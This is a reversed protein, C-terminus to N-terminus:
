NYFNELVNKVKEYYIDTSSKKYGERGGNWMRAALETDWEPNFTNQFAIFAQISIDEEWCDSHTFRYNTYLNIEKVMIPRIQLLGKANEGSNFASPNNGSEVTSIARIIAIRRRIEKDQEIQKNLTYYFEIQNQYIITDIDGLVIKLLALFLLLLLTKM